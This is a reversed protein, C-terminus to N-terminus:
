IRPKRVKRATKRAKKAKRTRRSRGRRSRNRNRARRGGEFTNEQINEHVNWQMNGNINGNINGNKKPTDKPYDKPDGLLDTFDSSALEVPWKGGKNKTLVNAGKNLLIEAIARNGKMAAIHLLTNGDDDQMSVNLSSDHMFLNDVVKDMGKEVAMKLLSSFDTHNTLEGSDLIANVIEQNGNKMAVQITTLGDANKADFDIRVPGNPPVSIMDKVTQIDGKAVAEQFRATLNAGRLEEEVMAAIRAPEAAEWEAIQKAREEQKRHFEALREEDDKNMKRELRDSYIEILYPNPHSAIPSPLEWRQADGYKAPLAEDCYITPLELTNKYAIKQYFADTIAKRIDDKAYSFATKNNGDLAHFLPDDGNNLVANVESLNNNKVAQILPTNGQANKSRAVLANLAEYAAKAAIPDEAVKATAAAKEPNPEALIRAEERLRTQEKEWNAQVRGAEERMRQKGAAALADADGKAKNKLVLMNRAIIRNLIIEAAKMIRQHKIYSAALESPAATRIYAETYDHAPQIGRRMEDMDDAEKAEAWATDWDSKAQLLEDASM